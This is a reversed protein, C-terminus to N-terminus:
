MFAGEKNHSNTLANRYWLASIPIMNSTPYILELITLRLPLRILLRSKSLGSYTLEDIKL